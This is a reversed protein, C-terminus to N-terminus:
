LGVLMDLSGVVVEVRNDKTDVMEVISFNKSVSNAVETDEEEIEVVASNKVLISLFVMDKTM